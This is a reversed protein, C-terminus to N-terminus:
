FFEEVKWGGGDRQKRKTVATFQFPFMEAAVKIKVRADERWFGKVEHFELNMGFPKVIAFDPTYYTNDALRLKIAEFGYWYIEGARKRLELEMAYASETKNM